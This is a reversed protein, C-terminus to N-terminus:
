VLAHREPQLDRRLRRHEVDVAREDPADEKVQEAVGELEGRAALDRDADTRALRDPRDLEAHAVGPDADRGIPALLDEPEEPRRAAGPAPLRAVEADPQREDLAAHPEEA